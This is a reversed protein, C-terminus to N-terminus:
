ELFLWEVERIIQSFDLKADKVAMATATVAFQVYRDMREVEEENLGLEFPNFEKSYAAIRTRFMSVDFMDVLRVASVGGVMAKWCNDKGIGNPSVVGLGTVVVRRNM